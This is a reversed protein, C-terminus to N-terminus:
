SQEDKKRNVYLSIISLVERPSLINMASKLENYFAGTNSERTEVEDWYLSMSKLIKEQDETLEPNKM